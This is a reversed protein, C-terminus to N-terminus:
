QIRCTWGQADENQLKKAMELDTEQQRDKASKQAQLAKAITEDDKKETSMPGTGKSETILRKDELIELLNEIGEFQPFAEAGFNNVM